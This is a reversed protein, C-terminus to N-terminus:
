TVLITCHPPQKGNLKEKETGLIFALQQQPTIMSPRLTQTLSLTQEPLPKAIMISYILHMSFPAFSQEIGM